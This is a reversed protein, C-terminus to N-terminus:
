FYLNWLGLQVIKAQKTQKVRWSRSVTIYFNVLLASSVLKKVLFVAPFLIFLFGSFQCHAPPILLLKTLMIQGGGSKFLNLRSALNQGGRNRRDEKAIVPSPWNNEFHGKPTKLDGLFGVFNKQRIEARPELFLDFWFLLLLTM